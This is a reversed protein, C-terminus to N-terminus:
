SYVPYMKSLLQIHVHCSALPRTILKTIYNKHGNFLLLLLLLHRGRGEKLLTKKLTMEVCSFM